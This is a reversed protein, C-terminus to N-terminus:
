RESAATVPATRDLPTENWGYGCRKCDRRLSDQGDKDYNEPKYTTGVFKGGCKPCASDETFEKM